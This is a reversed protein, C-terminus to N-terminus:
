LHSNVAAKIWAKGRPEIFKPRPHRGLLRDLQVGNKSIRIQARVNLGRKRRLNMVQIEHKSRISKHADQWAQHLEVISKNSM